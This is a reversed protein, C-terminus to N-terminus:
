YLLEMEEDSICEEEIEYGLLNLLDIWDFRSISHGSRRFDEGYNVELISWDGCECTTLKIYPKNM